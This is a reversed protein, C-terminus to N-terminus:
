AKEAVSAPRRYTGQYEGAPYKNINSQIKKAVAEAVDIQLSMALLLCYIIVDSLEEAVQQGRKSTPTIRRSQAPSLWQFIEMLEGAEIGVSLALNKPNHFKEWQRDAVFQRVMDKLEAIPTLMDNPQDM